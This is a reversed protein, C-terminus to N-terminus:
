RGAGRCGVEVAGRDEGVANQSLFQGTKVENGSRAFQISMQEVLAAPFPQGGVEARQCKWSGAVRSWFEAALQQQDASNAQRQNTLPRLVQAQLLPQSFHSALGFLIIAVLIRGWRFPHEFGIPRERLDTRRFQFRM